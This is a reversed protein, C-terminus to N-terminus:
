EFKTTSSKTNIQNNSLMQNERESFAANPPVSGFRSASLPLTWGGTWTCHLIFVLGPVTYYLCLVTWRNEATRLGYGCDSGLILSILFSFLSVQQYPLIRRSVMSLDMLTNPLHPHPTLPSTPPLPTNPPPPPSFVKICM